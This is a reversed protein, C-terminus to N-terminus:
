KNLLIFCMDCSVDCMVLHIVEQDSIKPRLTVDSLLKVVDDAGTSLASVAYILTDRDLPSSVTSICQPYTTHTTPIYYSMLSSDYCRYPFLTM